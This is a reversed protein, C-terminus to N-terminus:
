KSALNTLSTLPVTFHIEPAIVIALKRPFMQSRPNALSGHNGCLLFGKKEVVANSPCYCCSVGQRRRNPAAIRSSAVVGTVKRSNRM